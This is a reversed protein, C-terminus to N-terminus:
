ARFGGAELFATEEPTSSRGLAENRHPFRGFSRIVDLHIEAYKIGHIDGIARMYALAREQDALNESHMYPLHFFNRQPPQFERDLGRQIARGAVDRAHTDTAFARATGRFLNRPFQDLAIVLALAGKATKEWSAFQGRAAAEHTALFRERILADFAADAKFWREPGAEQWFALVADPGAVAAM